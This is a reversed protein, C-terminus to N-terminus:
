GSTTKRDKPSALGKSGDIVSEPPRQDTLNLVDLIRQLRFRQSCADDHGLSRFSTAVTPHTHGQWQHAAMTSATFGVGTRAAPPMPSPRPRAATKARSGRSGTM